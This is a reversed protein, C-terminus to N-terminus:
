PRSGLCKQVISIISLAEFCYGAFAIGIETGGQATCIPLRTRLDIQLLPNCTHATECGGNHRRGYDEDQIEIVPHSVGICTV